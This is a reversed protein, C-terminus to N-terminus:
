SMASTENVISNRCEVSPHREPPQGGTTKTSLYKLEDREGRNAFGRIVNYSDSRPPIGTTETSLYKLEM